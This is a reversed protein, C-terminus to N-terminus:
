LPQRWVQAKSLEMDTQRGFQWRGLKSLYKQSRRHAEPCRLRGLQRPAPICLMAELLYQREVRYPTVSETARTVHGKPLDPGYKRHRHGTLYQLQKIQEIATPAGVICGPLDTAM